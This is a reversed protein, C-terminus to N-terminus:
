ICFEKSLNLYAVSLECSLYRLDEIYVINEMIKSLANCANECVIAFSLFTTEYQKQLYNFQKQIQTLVRKCSQQTAGNQERNIERDLLEQLSYMCSFANKYTQANKKQKRTKLYLKPSTIQIIETQIQKLSSCVVTANEQTFYVAVVVRTQGDIQLPYGAGGLRTTDHTSAQIHTSTSVLYYFTKQTDVITANSLYFAYLCCCVVFCVACFSAVFSLRRKSLFETTM